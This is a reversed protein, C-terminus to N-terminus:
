LDLNDLPSRIQDFGRRTLHTYIETTRGSSHGLLAQIYRLDIGRELFHTAFSHRLSHLTVPKSIDSRALAQAFVKQLSSESYMWVLDIGSELNIIHHIKKLFTPQDPPWGIHTRNLQLM